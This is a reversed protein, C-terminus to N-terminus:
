RCAKFEPQSKGEWGAAPRGQRRAGPSPTSTEKARTPEDNGSRITPSLHLPSPPHIGGRREWLPAM